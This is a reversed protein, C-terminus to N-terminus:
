ARRKEKTEAQGSSQPVPSLQALVIGIPLAGLGVMLPLGKLLGADFLLYLAALLVCLKLVAAVLWAAASGGGLLARVTRSLTWLNLVGVAAGALVSLAGPVGFLPVSLVAFLGGVVVVTVLARREMLRAIDAENM